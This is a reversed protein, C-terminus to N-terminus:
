VDILSFITLMQGPKVGNSHFGSPGFAPHPTYSNSKQPQSLVRPWCCRLPFNIKNPEQLSSAYHCPLGPLLLVLFSLPWVEIWLCFVCWTFQVFGAGIIYKRRFAIYGWWVIGCISSWVNWHGLGCPVNGTWVVLLFPNTQRVSGLWLRNDLSTPASVQLCSGHLFAAPFLVAWM